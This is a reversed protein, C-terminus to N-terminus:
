KRPINGGPYTNLSFFMIIPRFIIFRTDYAFINHLQPIENFAPMMQVKGLWTEKKKQPFIRTCTPM